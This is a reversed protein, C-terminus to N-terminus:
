SLSILTAHETSTVRRMHHKKNQRTIVEGICLAAKEKDTYNRKANCSTYRLVTAFNIVHSGIYNGYVHIENLYTITSHMVVFCCGKQFNFTLKDVM